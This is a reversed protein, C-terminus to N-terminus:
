YASLPISMGLNSRDLFCCLYIITILPMLRLDIKRRVASDLRYAGNGNAESESSSNQVQNEETKM